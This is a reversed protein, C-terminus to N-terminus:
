VGGGRLTALGRTVDDLHHTSDHLGHELLRRVSSRSAGVTIGHHWASEGATRAADAMASAATALAVVVAVPDADEYTSAAADLLADAEIGPLVPETGTLAEDVAWRHLETIDRSHAAYEIASWTPPAPRLRLLDGAGDLLPGWRAGLGSLADLLGTGDFAAGDFGCAACTEHGRGRPRGTGPRAGTGREPVRRREERTTPGTHRPRRRASRALIPGHGVSAEVHGARNGCRGLHHEGDQAVRRAM